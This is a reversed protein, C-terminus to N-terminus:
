RTVFHRVMNGIWFSIPQSTKWALKNAAVSIDYTVQREDNARLLNVDTSVYDQWNSIGVSEFAQQVIDSLKTNVGSALIVDGLFEKELIALIGLCIDEAASWDRSITLDGMVLESQKGDAIAAVGRALKGMVFREPRYKSEHNSLFANTARAGDSRLASVLQATALKSVGYPNNAKMPSSETVVALSGDFVEVSTANVFLTEPRNNKVWELLNSTGVVNSLMTRSPTKWSTAVSTEGALHIVADPLVSELGSSIQEPNSIDLPVLNNRSLFPHADADDFGPFYSGVVEHGHKPLLDSLILGDQGFAGTVLVKM